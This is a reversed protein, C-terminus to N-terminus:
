SSIHAVTEGADAPALAVAVEAQSIIGVLEHGDVVPPRRVQHQKMMELADQVDDDAGVTVPKAEAPHHHRTCRDDDLGRMSGTYAWV